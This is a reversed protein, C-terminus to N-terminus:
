NSSASVLWILIAKYLNQCATPLRNHEYERLLNEQNYFLDFIAGVTRMQEFRDILCCIAHDTLPLFFNAKLQDEQSM